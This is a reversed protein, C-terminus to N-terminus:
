KLWARRQGPKCKGVIVYTKGDTSEYTARRIGGRGKVIDQAREITKVGRMVDVVPLGYQSREIRLRKAKM